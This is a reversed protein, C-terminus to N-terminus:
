VHKSISIIWFCKSHHLIMGESMISPDLGQSDTYDEKEMVQWHKDSLVPDHPPQFGDLQVISM